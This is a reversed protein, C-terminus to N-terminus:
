CISPLRGPKGNTVAVSGSQGLGSACYHGQQWVEAADGIEPVSGWFTQRVGCKACAVMVEFIREGQCVRAAAVTGDANGAPLLAPWRIAADETVIRVLRECALVRM